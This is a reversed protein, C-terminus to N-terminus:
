IRPKASTKDILLTGTPSLTWNLFSMDQFRRADQWRAITFPKHIRGFVKLMHNKLNLYSSYNLQRLNKFSNNKEDLRKLAFQIKKHDPWDPKFEKEIRDFWDSVGITEPTGYFRFFSGSNYKESDEQQNNQPNLSHQLIAHVGEAIGQMTAPAVCQTGVEAQRPASASPQQTLGAQPQINMQSWNTSNNTPWTSHQYAAQGQVLPEPNFQQPQQGAAQGQLQPESLFQQPQRLHQQISVNNAQGFVTPMSHHPAQQIGTHIPRSVSTTSVVTTTTNTTKCTEPIATDENHFQIQTINRQGVFGNLVNQQVAAQNERVELIDQQTDQHHELNYNETPDPTRGAIQRQCDRLEDQLRQYIEDKRTNEAKMTKNETSFNQIIITKDELWRDQKLITEELKKIVEKSQDVEQAVKGLQVKLEANQKKEEQNVKYKRKLEAIEQNAENLKSAFEEIQNTVALNKRNSQEIYDNKQLIDMKMKENESNCQQLQQTQYEKDLQLKKIEENQALIHEEKNEIEQGQKLRMDVM